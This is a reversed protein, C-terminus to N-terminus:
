KGQRKRKKGKPLDKRVEHYHNPDLVNQDEGLGHHRGRHVQLDFQSDCLTVVSALLYVCGAHFSKM